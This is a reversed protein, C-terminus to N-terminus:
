VVSKRDPGVKEGPGLFPGKGLNNGFGDASRFIKDQVQRLGGVTKNHHSETGSHDEQELSPCCGHGAVKDNQLVNDQLVVM